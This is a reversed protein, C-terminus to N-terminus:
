IIFRTDKRIKTSKILCREIWYYNFDEILNGDADLLKNEFGPPLDYGNNEGNGNGNGNGAGEFSATGLSSGTSIGYKKAIGPPLKQLGPPLNGADGLGLGKGQGHEKGTDSAKGFGPHDDPFVLTTLSLDSDGSTAALIRTQDGSQLIVLTEELEDVVVDSLGLSRGNEVIFTLSAEADEVFEEFRDNQRSDVQAYLQTYVDDLTDESGDLIDAAQMWDDPDESAALEAALDLADAYETLGAGINLHNSTILADLTALEEQGATIKEMLKFLASAHSPSNLIAPNDGSVQAFAAPMTFLLSLFALAFIGM